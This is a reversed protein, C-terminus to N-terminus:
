QQIATFAQWYAQAVHMCQNEAHIIGYKESCKTKMTKMWVSAAMGGRPNDPKGAQMELVDVEEKFTICATTCTDAEEKGCKGKCCQVCSGTDRGCNPACDGGAIMIGHPLSSVTASSGAVPNSSVKSLIFLVLWAQPNM